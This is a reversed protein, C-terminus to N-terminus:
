MSQVHLLGEGVPSGGMVQGPGPGLGAPRVRWMRLGDYFAKSNKMRGWHRPGKPCYAGCWLAGWPLLSLLILASLIEVGPICGAGVSVASGAPVRAAEWPLQGVKTLM